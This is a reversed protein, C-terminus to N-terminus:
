GGSGSRPNWVLDYIEDLGIELGQGDIGSIWSEDAVNLCFCIFLFKINFVVTLAFIQELGKM